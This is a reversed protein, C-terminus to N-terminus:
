CRRSTPGYAPAELAERLLADIEYYREYLSVVGIRDSRIAASPSVSFDEPSVITCRVEGPIAPDWRGESFELM